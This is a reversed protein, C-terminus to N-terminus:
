QRPAPKRRAPKGAKKGPNVPVIETENHSKGSATHLRAAKLTLRSTRRGNIMDISGPQITAVSWGNVTDGPGLKQLKDNGATQILAIRESGSIIVASLKVLESLDPEETSTDQEAPADPPSVYPRRIQRFLPREIIESFVSLPTVVRETTATGPLKATSKDHNLLVTAPTVSYRCVLEYVTSGVFLVCAYLLYGRITRLVRRNLKM